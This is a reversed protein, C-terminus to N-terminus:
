VTGDLLLLFWALCTKGAIEIAYIMQSFYMDFRGVCILRPSRDAILRNDEIKTQNFGVSDIVYKRLVAKADVGRRTTLFESLAEARKQLAEDALVPVPEPRQREVQKFRRDKGFRSVARPRLSAVYL